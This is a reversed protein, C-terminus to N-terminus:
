ETNITWQFVSMDNGGTTVIRSDNNVFTVNTVHSSHGNYVRKEAKFSGCPYTFLNLKGFDDVTALLNNASSGYCGNIDTGDMSTSGGSSNAVDSSNWIGLTNFSLICSNNEWKIERIQQVQTIQKCSSAQWFLVEYDGSNTMLYESESSWDIHTIFSSHGSCKGIRSYKLGNDGVNYVYIFNDRSGVALYQGNPSYKIVEIQETGEVQTFVVKREAIDYVLWKAKTLGVAALDFEPHINVSHLQDELQASWLM